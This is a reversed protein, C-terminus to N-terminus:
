FGTDFDYPAQLLQPKPLQLYPYLQLLPDVGRQVNPQLGQHAHVKGVKHSTGFVPPGLMSGLISRDKHHPSRFLAGVKQFSGYLM